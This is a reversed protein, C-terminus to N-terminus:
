RGGGKSLVLTLGDRGFVILDSVRDRDLDVIEFGEGPGVGLTRTPQDPLDYKKKRSLFGGGGRKGEYICFRDTETLTLLDPRGDGNFDGEFSALPALGLQASELSFEIMKSLEPKAVFRGKGKQALFVHYTVKVTKFLAKTLNSMLDMRVSSVVLDAAGDGDVDVLDPPTSIGKVTLPQRPKRSFLEEGGGYVLVRTLVQGLLSLRGSQRSVILDSRRDGDSLGELLVWHNEVREGATRGSPDLFGLVRDVDPTSPISGDTKQLHVRLRDGLVLHLDTRGDGDHDGLLLSPLSADIRLYDLAGGSFRRADQIELQTRAEFMPESAAPESAPPPGTRAGYVAYGRRTGLVLEARGDGDLDSALKWETLRESDGVPFFLETRVLPEPTALWSGKKAHIEVGARTLLAIEAGPTPLWDAICYAAVDDAVPRQDSAAFPAASNGSPRLIVLSRSRTKEDYTGAVIELRGDGDLDAPTASTVLGLRDFRQTTPEAALAPRASALVFMALAFATIWFSLRM